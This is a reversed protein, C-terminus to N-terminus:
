DFFPTGSEQMRAEHRAFAVRAEQEDDFAFIQFRDQTDCSIGLMFCDPFRKLAVASETVDNESKALLPPESDGARRYAEEESIEIM